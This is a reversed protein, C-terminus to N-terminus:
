TTTIIIKQNEPLLEHVKALAKNRDKYVYRLRAQVHESTIYVGYGVLNLGEPATKDITLMFGEDREIFGNILTKVHEELMIIM